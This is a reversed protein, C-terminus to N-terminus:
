GGVKVLQSLQNHTRSAIYVQPITNRPGPPPEDPQWPLVRGMEDRSEEEGGGQGGGVGEVELPTHTRPQKGKDRRPRGPETASSSSGGVGGDGDVEPADSSQRARKAAPERGSGSSRGGEDDDVVDRVRKSGRRPNPKFDDDDDVPGVVPVPPRTNPEDKVRRSM